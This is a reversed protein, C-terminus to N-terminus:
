GTIGGMLGSLEKIKIGFGREVLGLLWFINEKGRENGM